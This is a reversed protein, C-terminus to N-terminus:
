RWNISLVVPENVEPQPGPAIDGGVNEDGDETGDTEAGDETEDGDNPLEDKEVTQIIETDVWSKFDPNLSYVTAGVLFACIAVTFIIAIGNFFKKM